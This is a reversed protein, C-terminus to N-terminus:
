SRLRHHFINVFHAQAHDGAHKAREQIYESIHLPLPGNAGLLGYFQQEVVLGGSATHPTIDVLTSSAFALSASQTIRVPDDILRKSQGLRPLTSYTAELERLLAFFGWQFPKSQWRRVFHMADLQGTQEDLEM